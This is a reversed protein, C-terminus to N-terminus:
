LGPNPFRAQAEQLGLRAEMREQRQKHTADAEEYPVEQIALLVGDSALWKCFAAEQCVRELRDRGLNDMWRSGYYNLWFLGIPVALRDFQFMRTRYERRQAHANDFGYAYEPEFARIVGEFLQMLRDLKWENQVLTASSFQLVVSAPILRPTSSETFTLSVGNKATLPITATAADIFYGEPLMERQYDAPRSLSVEASESTVLTLPFFGMELRDLATLVASTTADNFPRSIRYFGLTYSPM